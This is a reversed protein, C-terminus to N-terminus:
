LAGGPVWVPMIEAQLIGHLAAHRPQMM